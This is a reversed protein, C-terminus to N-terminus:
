SCYIYKDFKIKNTYYIPRNVYTSLYNVLSTFYDSNKLLILATNLCQEFVGIIAKCMFKQKM